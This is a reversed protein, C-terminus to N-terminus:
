KEGVEAAVADDSLADVGSVIVRDGDHLGSVIEMRGNARGGTVVGVRKVRFRNFSGETAAALFVAPGDAGAVIADEPVTLAAGNTAMRVTVEVGTGPPPAPRTDISAVVRSTGSEAVVGAVETIRGGGNWAPAARSAFTVELGPRLQARESAAVASEVMPSGSTAIEALVTSPEVVSGAPVPKTVVLTGSEPAVIRLTSMRQSAANFRERALTAQVRRADLEASSTLGLKFGREARQFEAAAADMELRAETQASRLDDNAVEAILEGRSVRAGTRPPRAYRLTGHQQATLPISQAARVMGLLTLTPTFATRRAVETRVPIASLSDVPERECAALTLLILFSLARRSM